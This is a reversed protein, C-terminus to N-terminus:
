SRRTVIYDALAALADPRLDGDELHSVARRALRAAEKRAGDVGMLGVYTSKSLAQDRGATKGLETSTGTV